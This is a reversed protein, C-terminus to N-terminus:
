LENSRALVWRSRSATQATSRLAKNDVWTQPNAAFTVDAWRFQSFTGTVTSRAYAAILYRGSLMPAVSLHFGSNAYQGGHASGVDPRSIGLTAAGLFVGPGLVGETLPFAWVHVADIGSGGTAGRDLAWGGITLARGPPLTVGSGPSDLAMVPSATFVVDAVRVQSFTGTVTSRAYAATRYAGILKPAVSLHFGSAAFQSGYANGVDPRAIGLTAAGLWTGEGLVGGALPFAWVHVADIGGGGTAGRDLAWGWITLPQGAELTAGSNPSDLSMRPDAAAQTRATFDTGLSDELNRIAAELVSFIQARDRASSVDLVDTSWLGEARLASEFAARAPTDSIAVYQSSGDVYALTQFVNSFVTELTAMGFAVHNSPTTILTADAPSPIPKNYLQDLYYRVQYPYQRYSDNVGWVGSYSDVTAVTTNTADAGLRSYSAMLTGYFGQNYAVNLLVDLFSDPLTKFNELARDFYPQWGPTYGGVAGIKQLAVYDNFHFYATLMPGYYKNNFSAPTARSYQTAANEMTFGINKRIAVYNILSYGSPAYTGYVMDAAYNNIQYPGGQGIGMVAAQDPSPDILDSSARYYATALNEQLLQGLISGYLYDKNFQLGPTYKRLLHGCMVGAVMNSMILDTYNDGTLTISDQPTTYGNVGFLLHFDITGTTPVSQRQRVPPSPTPASTPTPLPSSMVAHTRALSLSFTALLVLAIRAFTGTKM